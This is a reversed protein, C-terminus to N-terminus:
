VLFIIVGVRIMCGSDRAEIRMNRMGFGTSQSRIREDKARHGAASRSIRISREQVIFKRGAYKGRYVCELCSGNKFNKFFKVACVGADTGGQWFSADANISVYTIFCVLIATFSIVEKKITEELDMYDESEVRVLNSNWDRSKLKLKYNIM